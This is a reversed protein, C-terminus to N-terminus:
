YNLSAIVLKDAVQEKQLTEITGQMELCSDQMLVAFSQWKTVEDDDATHAFTVSKKSIHHQRQQM